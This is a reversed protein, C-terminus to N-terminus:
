GLREPVELWLVREHQPERPAPHHHGALDRRREPGRQVDDDDAFQAHRELGLQRHARDALAVDGHHVGLHHPGSAEPVLVSRASSARRADRYRPARGGRVSSPRITITTSSPMAVPDVARAAHWTALAAPLALTTSAAGTPGGPTADRKAPRASSTTHGHVGAEKKAM